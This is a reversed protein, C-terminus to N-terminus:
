SNATWIQGDHKWWNDHIHKSSNPSFALSYTKPKNVTKTMSPIMSSIFDIYASVSIPIGRLPGRFPTEFPIHTKKYNTFALSDSEDFITSIIQSLGPIKIYLPANNGPISVVFAIVRGHTNNNDTNTIFTLKALDNESINSLILIKNKGEYVSINTNVSQALNTTVKNLWDAHPDEQSYDNNEIQSSHTKLNDQESM